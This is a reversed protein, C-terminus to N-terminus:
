SWKPSIPEDFFKVWAKARENMLKELQDVPYQCTGRATGREDKLSGCNRGQGTPDWNGLLEHPFTDYSVGRKPLPFSSQPRQAALETQCILIGIVLLAFSFAWQRVNLFTAENGIRM